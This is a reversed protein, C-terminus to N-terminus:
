FAPRMEPIRSFLHPASQHQKFCYKSVASFIKFVLFTFLANQWQKICHKSRCHFHQFCHLQITCESVKTFRHQVVKPPAQGPQARGQIRQHSTCVCSQYIPVICVHYFFFQIHLAIVKVKLQIEVSKSTSKDYGPMKVGARLDTM